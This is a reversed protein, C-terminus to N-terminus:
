LSRFASRGYAGESSYAVTLFIHYPLAHPALEAAKKLTAIAESNRGMFLYTCGIQALTFSRDIPSLRLARKLETLAEAYRGTRSLIYGLYTAAFASNPNLKVAKQGASIAKDYERKGLYIIGLHMYCAYLEDDLAM